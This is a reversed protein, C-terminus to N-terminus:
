CNDWGEIAQLELHVLYEVIFKYLVIINIKRGETSRQEDTKGQLDYGGKEKPM